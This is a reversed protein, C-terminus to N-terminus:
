EYDDDTVYILLHNFKEPAVDEIGHIAQSFFDNAIEPVIVAITKIKKERMNSALHHPQYNLKKAM